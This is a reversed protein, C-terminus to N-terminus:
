DDEWARKVATYVAKYILDSLEKKLEPDIKSDITDQDELVYEEPKIGCFKELQVMKKNSITNRRIVRQIYGHAVNLSDNIDKYNLDRVFIAERLKEGDVKLVNTSM